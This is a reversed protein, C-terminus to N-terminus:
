FNNPYTRKTFDVCLDYKNWYNQAFEGLHWRRASGDALAVNIPDKRHVPYLLGGYGLIQFVKMMLRFREMSHSEPIFM